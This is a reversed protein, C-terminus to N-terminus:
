SAEALQMNIEKRVVPYKFKRKFSLIPKEIFKWSLWAVFCLVWFNIALFIWPEYLKDIFPEYYDFVYNYWLHSAIYVFLIHYLYVGYSIKGISILLRSNLIWILPSKKNKYILVHSIMWCSIITHFFRTCSFYFDSQWSLALATLAFVSLLTLLRYAKQLFRYYHVTVFALLGGAGFCDFCTITPLHGFEVNPLLLQSSLGTFISVLFIPVLYKKPWFLMLLPWALYFQEEVALSWFHLSSSPWSQTFYIYFNTTYTLNSLIENKTVGLTFQQNLIIALLITLYYIPFIRLMRRAYFHKLIKVKSSMSDEADRRNFLLIRTILFGSLVFFINVGFSGTHLREIISNRPIWHWIVVLFVAIARLSDLQKIYRVELPVILDKTIIPPILNFHLHRDANNNDAVQLGGPL